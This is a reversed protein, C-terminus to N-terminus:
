GPPTQRRCKSRSAPRSGRFCRATSSRPLAQLAAATTIGANLCSRFSCTSQPATSVNISDARAGCGTPPELIPRSSNDPLGKEHQRAFPIQLVALISLLNDTLKTFWSRDPKESQDAAHLVPTVRCRQRDATQLQVMKATSTIAAGHNAPKTHCGIRARDIELRSVPPVRLMKDPQDDSYHELELLIHIKTLM